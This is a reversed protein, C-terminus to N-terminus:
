ETQCRGRVVRDSGLQRFTKGSLLYPRITCRQGEFSDDWKALVLRSSPVYTLSLSIYGEGGIPFNFLEGSRLDGVVYIVCGAGCGVPILAFHGAYDPGRRFGQRIVTRLNSFQKGSGTFKPAVIRGHYEPVPYRNYDQAEAAHSAIGLAIATILLAKNMDEM